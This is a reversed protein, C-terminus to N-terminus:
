RGRNRGQNEVPGCYAIQPGHAHYVYRDGSIELVIRQGTVLAPIPRDPQKSFEGCGLNSAPFEDPTVSVLEVETVSVDLRAALDASAHMVTNEASPRPVTPSPMVDSTVTPCPSGPTMAASPTRTALSSVFRPAKADAKTPDTVPSVQDLTDSATTCSATVAAAILLLLMRLTKM